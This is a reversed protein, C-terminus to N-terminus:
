SQNSEGLRSSLYGSEIQLQRGNDSVYFGLEMILRATDWRIRATASSEM